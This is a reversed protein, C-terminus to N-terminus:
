PPLRAHVRRPVDGRRLVAPVQDREPQRTTVRVQGRRAPRRRRDRAGPLAAPLHRRVRRLVRPVAHGAAPHRQRQVLVLHGAPHDAPGHGDRGTNWRSPNQRAAGAPQRVRVARRVHRPRTSTGCTVDAARRRLVGALRLQLAQPRDGRPRHRGPRPLTEPARSDPSYDTVYAVDNSDVQIRFPNRFGMAYIEPRTKHTGEPFLNGHPITYTGDANVKIRLVKGRLDNTNTSAAGRTSTRPSSGTARRGQPSRSPAGTRRMMQSVNRRAACTAASTSRARAASATRRHRGRRRPRHEAASRAGGRDGGNDFPLAIPATTHGDFTLTFTGGTASAPRVPRRRM